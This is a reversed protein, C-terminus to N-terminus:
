VAGAGRHMGFVGDADFRPLHLAEVAPMKPLQTTLTVASAPCPSASFAEFGPRKGKTVSSPLSYAHDHDNIPPPNTLGGLYSTAAVQGNKPPGVGRPVPANGDLPQQTRANNYYEVYEALIRRLHGEGFVVM